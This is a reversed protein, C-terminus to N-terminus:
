DEQKTPKTKGNQEDILLMRTRHHYFRVTYFAACIGAISVGIRLLEEVEPLWAVFVSVVTSAAGIVGKM